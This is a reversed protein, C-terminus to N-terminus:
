SVDNEKKQCAKILASLVEKKLPVCVIHNHL